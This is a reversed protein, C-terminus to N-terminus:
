RVFRWLLRRSRARYRVARDPASPLPIAAWLALIPTRSPRWSQIWFASRCCALSTFESWMANSSVTIQSLPYCYQSYVATLGSVSVKEIKPQKRSCSGYQRLFKQSLETLFVINRLCHKEDIVSMMQWSWQISCSESKLGDAMSIPISDFTDKSYYFEACWQKAITRM